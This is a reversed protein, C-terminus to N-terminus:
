DRLLVFDTSSPRIPLYRSGELFWIYKEQAPLVRSPNTLIAFSPESEVPVPCPKPYDFLSPKALSM